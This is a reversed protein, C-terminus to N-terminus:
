ERRYDKDIKKYSVWTTYYCDYCMYGRGGHSDTDFYKLKGGCRKCVGNNFDRREWEKCISSLFLLLVCMIILMWLLGTSTM